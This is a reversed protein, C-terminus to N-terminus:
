VDIHDLVVPGGPYSYTVADLNVRAPGRPLVRGADGPDAIDPGTDLVSLVRRWGATATQAETFIEAARMMPQVFLTMLFLFAILQGATLHGGIGIWAGVLVVATSGIAAVIEAFPSVAMSLRQARIQATRTALVTTDIRD